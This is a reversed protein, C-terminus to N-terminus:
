VTSHGSRTKVLSGRDCIRHGTDRCVQLKGVVESQSYTPTGSHQWEGTGAVEAYSVVLCPSKVAGIEFTNLQVTNSSLYPTPM